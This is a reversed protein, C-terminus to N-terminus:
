GGAAREYCARLRAGVVEPSYQALVRERAALGRERNVVGELLTVINEALSPADGVPSVLGGPGVVDPLAGYDSTAVPVGLSMAELVTLPLGDSESPYALVDISPLWQGVFVDRELRGSVEAPLSLVEELVQEPVNSAVKMRAGPVRRLVQKCAELATAGGKALWDGAFGVVCPPQNAARVAEPISVFCPVVDILDRPVGRAVYWSALKETFAIVRASRVVRLSSHEVDMLKAIGGELGSAVFTRLGSWKRGDTYLWDIPNANSLVFPCDRELWKVNFVHCHVLNYVGPKLWFLRAPESFLWGAQRGKNIVANVGALWLKGSGDGRRVSRPTLERLTGNRLAEAYTTYQVGGPPHELLAETYVVDGCMPDLGRLPSLLLVRM